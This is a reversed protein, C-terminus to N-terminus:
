PTDDEGSRQDRIQIARDVSQLLAAMDAFLKQISLHFAMLRPDDDALSWGTMLVTVIRPDIERIMLAVRDGPM